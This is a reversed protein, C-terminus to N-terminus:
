TLRGRSEPTGSLSAKRRPRCAWVLPNGHGVEDNEARQRSPRSRAIGPEVKRNRYSAVCGRSGEETSDVMCRATVMRNRNVRTTNTPGQALALTRALVIVTLEVSTATTCPSPLHVTISAISFARCASWAYRSQSDPEAALLTM